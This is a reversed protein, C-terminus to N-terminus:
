DDLSQLAGRLAGLPPLRQDFHPDMNLPNTHTHDTSMNSSDTGLDETRVDHFALTETIMLEPRECGWVVARDPELTPDTTALDGDVQWGNSNFPYIDYEFGTMISDRDRFDVVNVAWQAVAQAIEEKSTHSSHDFDFGYDDLNSMTAQDVLMMMLVYLYRAYVHRAMQKETATLGSVNVVGNTLNGQKAPSYYSSSPVNMTSAWQGTTSEDELPEDVIYNGNDDRGNGFPRNLDMRQGAVLEPPLMKAIQTAIDTLSADGALLRLRLLDTIHLSCQPLTTGALGACNTRRFCRLLPCITAKPRSWAACCHCSCLRIGLGNTAPDLLRRLRNPLDAADVDYMRLISELEAPTFPKDIPNPTAGGGSSLTIASPTGYASGNRGAKRSLNFEYPSDFVADYNFTAGHVAGVGPRVPMGLWDMLVMGRGFVDHPSGFVNLTTTTAPTPDNTSPYQTFALGALGDAYNTKGPRGPLLTGSWVYSPDSTYPVPSSGVNLTPDFVNSNAEGYRAALLATYPTIANAGGLPSTTATTPSFLPFLSIEAPGYGVGRQVPPFTSGGANNCIAGPPVPFSSEATSPSASTSRLRYQDVDTINGQADVNLRGDLDICLIAALPKYSRGDAATQVPFGVDIWVSERIGDGDNDVDFPGNVPNFNPNSGTFSPHDAGHSGALRGCCRTVCYM